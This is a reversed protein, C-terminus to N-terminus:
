PLVGKPNINTGNALVEFHLHPGTTTPGAGHTGPEGGSLGIFEGQHLAQGASVSIESLHGYLTAYGGRHGVLVYSYGTAGGDRALFVIGDAAAHIPSGQGVVIDIGQHPIGFYQLYDPDHFGASIPGYAPWSFTPQTSLSSHDITGPTLLGKELLEREIRSRIQADIRALAGQMRIVEAHVDEATRRIRSLQDQTLRLRRAADREAELAEETTEQITALNAQADAIRTELTRVSGTAAASAHLDTETTAAFARAAGVAIGSPSIGEAGIGRLVSAAQRVGRILLALPIQEPPLTAGSEADIYAQWRRETVANRLAAVERRLTSKERMLPIVRETATKLEAEYRRSLAPLSRLRQYERSADVVAVELARQVEQREESQTFAFTLLPLIGIFLVIATTTRNIERDVRRNIPTHM